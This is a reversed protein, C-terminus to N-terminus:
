TGGSKKSFAPSLFVNSLSTGWITILGGIFGKSCKKNVDFPLIFSCFAFFINEFLLNM